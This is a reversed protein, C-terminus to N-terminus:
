WGLGIAALEKRIFPLDWLKVTGDDAGSALVQGDPHFALATAGSPHPMWRALEKGSIPDWLRILKDEGASALISSDPNIALAKATAHPEYWTRRISGSDVDIVDFRGEDAAIYLLRGDAGFAAAVVNHRRQHDPSVQTVLQIPRLATGSEVDWIACSGNQEGAVVRRGDPSFLLVPWRSSGRQNDDKVWIRELERRTLDHLELQGGIRGAVDDRTAKLQCALLLRKGDPSVALNVPMNWSSSRHEVWSLSIEQKEPYVQSVVFPEGFRQAATRVAWLRGASAYFQGQTADNTEMPRLTRRDAHQGVQWVTECAALERGDASFALAQIPGGASSVPAGPAVEYVNLASNDSESFGGPHEWRGRAWTALYRGDPSWVQNNHGHLYALSAGSAVEWLRVNGSWTEAAALFAGDPSFRGWIFGGAVLRRGPRGKTVDFLQIIQADKPDQFAILNAEPSLLLSSELPVAPVDPIVTLQRRAVLDWVAVPGADLRARDGGRRLAALRGTMAIPGWGEPTEFVRQGTRIDWVQLRQADGVLLEDTTIFGVPGGKRSLTTRRGAAVDWLGIGHAGAFALLQGTANFHFPPKGPFAAVERKTTPEWLRVQDQESIALLPSTPSFLFSFPRQGKVQSIVEGGPIRWVRGDLDVLLKCDASFAMYLGDGSIGVPSRQLHCVLRVGSTTASEIAEKRLEPTVSQCAAEALLELSRWRQGALREARGQEFLAKWVRGQSQDREVRLQQERLEVENKQERVKDLAVEVRHNSILLVILIAVGALLGTCLLAAAAPRRKAWKWVRVVVPTPRARIPEGRLWRELDHQLAEASAYRKAPEKELCKLCITELDRDLGPCVSSPRPPETERAQRLVELVTGGTFPTQGTLREYLVVGLSYVDVAVTLDKRGAAQEPAMYRPTGVIAGSETLSHDADVRKALGFDAVLPAGATDVLINSPKLDRHLIGHQHAHYVARAITAVQGAEKRADSRPHRALSTGEVYRMAYYQQGDHEGVEYISVIHPYDLNAGAEAEARFRVVDRETALEGRLIMKLAVVRNLSVQRAKYVVGMGGRAIVELLEYDGFYRVRPLEGEPGPADTTRNPDASLRLEAAQRDLRDYDAFFARLREALQPHRALLAERDPVNGAEVQQVYEAIIADLSDGPSKSVDNPDPM